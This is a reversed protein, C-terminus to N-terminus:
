ARKEIEETEEQKEEVFTSQVFQFANKMSRENENQQPREKAFKVLDSLRLLQQLNNRTDDEINEFRLSQLIQDTTYELANIGYRESIYLRVIDTLDSHYQKIKGKQLLQKEKLEALASNAKIHAPIVPALKVKKNRFYKWWVLFGILLLVLAIIIWTYTSSLIKDLSEMLTIEDSYISKIDKIDSEADFEEVMGVTIGIPNSSIIRGELTVAFPAIAAFGTDFTTIILKQTEKGKEAKKVEGISVLEFVYGITDETTLVPWEADKGKYDAPYTFTLNIAIQEGIRMKATDATLKLAAQDQAFGSFSFFFMAIVALWGSRYTFLKRM